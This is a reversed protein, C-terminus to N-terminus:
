PRAEREDHIGRDRRYRLFLHEGSRALSVLRWWPADGVSFAIGEALTLRPARHSRGAIQPAVTLFLEDVLDRELLSGLLHPGGECLVLGFGRRELEGVLADADVRDVGAEVVEPAAPADAFRERGAHTTVLLAPAASLGPHAPDVQGSASVVVTTPQPALGLRRRMAAVDSAAPPFIYEPTWAEGAGTRLTGAGILVADAVGRLVSMVFRDPGFFGSIEGGGAAEPTAYSVVGDLTSVFNAAITPRDSRRAFALPAGYADALRGDLMSTAREAVLHEMRPLPPAAVATMSM